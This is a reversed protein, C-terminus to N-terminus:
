QSFPLALTVWFMVEFSPKCPMHAGQQDPTASLGRPRLDLGGGAWHATEGAAQSPHGSVQMPM